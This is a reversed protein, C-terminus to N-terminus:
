NHTIKYFATEIEMVSQAPKNKIRGCACTAVGEFSVNTETDGYETVTRTSVKMESLEKVSCETQIHKTAAQDKLVFGMIELNRVSSLAIARLMGLQWNEAVEANTIALANGSYEALNKM